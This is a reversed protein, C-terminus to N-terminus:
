KGHMETKIENCFPLDSIRYRPRGNIVLAVKIKGQKEWKRLTLPDVSLYAATQKRTLLQDQM